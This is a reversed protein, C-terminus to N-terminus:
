NKTALIETKLTTSGTVETIQTGSLCSSYSTPNANIKIVGVLKSCYGFTARMNLVSNPIDPATLLNDCHWFTMYMNTISKPIVPASVINDCDYFTTALTTVAEGNISNLIQGYETKNKDLVRVGWGDTANIEHKTWVMAVDADYWYQYCYEYDGYMYKDGQTLVPFENGGSLIAGDAKTYTAGEPITGFHNLAVDIKEIIVGDTTVEIKYENVNINNKSLANKVGEKLKALDAGYEVYAEAWGLQAVEKITAANTKDVADTAKQIIGSNNLTLIIAGALIVMVIITIALVILSIGKKKQM